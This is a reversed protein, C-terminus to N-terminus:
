VNEFHLVTSDGNKLGSVDCLCLWGTIEPIFYNGTISESSEIQEQGICEEAKTLGTDQVDSM